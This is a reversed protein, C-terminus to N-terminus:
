KRGGKKTEWAVYDELQSPSLSRVKRARLWAVEADCLIENIFGSADLM